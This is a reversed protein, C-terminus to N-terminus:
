ILENLAASLNHYKFHFGKNEIKKSCVRQSEFLLIHMEGLVLKMVFKPINPLFLPVDLQNAIAKTIEANTKSNPAVGNYVGELKHETIYIFLRALDQIHIWSNWQEGSGMNAGLGYKIPKKLEPFAGGDNSLVLGIRVKSVTIGLSSFNDVANEWLSVVKGLFSTSVQEEEETYYNTLSDPYIGIASASVIHKISHANNALAKHLLATTKVRSDIINKKQETTWRESISAGVLHIITDVDKLCDVDIEETEPNWLYGRYNDDKSIKSTSTTLYSVLLDKDHCQKVIESGILGTAGTILVRM